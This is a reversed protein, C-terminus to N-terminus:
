LGKKCLLKLTSSRGRLTKRRIGAQSGRTSSSRMPFRARSFGKLKVRGIKYARIKGARIWRLVTMKTIGLRKAAEGTRYLRM